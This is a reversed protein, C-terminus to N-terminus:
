LVAKLIYENVSDVIDHLFSSIAINFLQHHNDPQALVAEDLYHRQLPHNIFWQFANDGESLANAAYSRGEFSLFEEVEDATANESPFDAMSGSLWQIYLRAEAIKDNEGAIEKINNLDISKIISDFTIDNM